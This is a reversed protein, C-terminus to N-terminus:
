HLDQRFGIRAGPWRKSVNRLLKKAQLRTRSGQPFAGPTKADRMPRVIRGGDPARQEVLVFYRRRGLRARM